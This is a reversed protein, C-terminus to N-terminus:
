PNPRRHSRGKAGIFVKEEVGYHNFYENIASNVILDKSLGTEQLMLNLQLEQENRVVISSEKM